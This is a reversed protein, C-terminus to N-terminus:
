AATIGYQLKEYLEPTVEFMVDLWDEESLEDYKDFNYFANLSKNLKEVNIQTFGDGHSHHLLESLMEAHESILNSIFSDKASM